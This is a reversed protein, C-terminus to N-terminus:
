ILIFDKGAYSRTRACVEIGERHGADNTNGEITEFTDDHVETVIGTHTWDGVIRRVLFISGPTLKAPADEDSLRMGAREAQTALVDCSVSGAIPKGISLSQSAQELLFTV